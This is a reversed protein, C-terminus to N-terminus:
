KDKKVKFAESVTFGPFKLHLPTGAAVEAKETSVIKGEYCDWYEITYKGPTLGPLNTEIGEHRVRETPAPMSMMAQDNYVWGYAGNEWRYSYSLLQGATPGSTPLPICAGKIGRRDEGKIYNNFGRYYGWLSNRDILDYWWFLPTGAGDTMWTAWIGCAIDSELAPPRGAMNQGGYETIWFPKIINGSALTATNWREMDIACQTYRKALDRYADTVVYDFIPTKALDVDIWQYDTAYHITVPHDYPDCKRIHTIMRNAWAKLTPSRHFIRRAEWDSRGRDGVLDYESVLEWGLIAPDAGWRAAIYRLKNEHWKMTAPNSFMEQATAVGPGDGRSKYPNNEWEWDCYSSFKGHNDLVLHISMGHQHAMELLTDLKWAHQLSYRGAGYYETWEGTWEIGLWWSAMWVEATNEGNKQMKDFYDAYMHLGRGAPPEQHFVEKWCRIDVPSHLNHGIPYFFDGNDFEFFRPDKQSVKIFGRGGSPICCFTREPLELVETGLKCTLKYKYTGEERPSIRVRWEPRGMPKVQDGNFRDARDYDQYWFGIHQATQGSPSTVDCTIDAKDPDFPNDVERSLEFRVTMTEYKRVLPPSSEGEAAGPETRFNIVQLPRDKYAEAQAKLELLKAARDPAIPAAQPDQGNVQSVVRAFREARLFGRFNDLYVNGDFKKDGYITIGITQIQTAQNDDWQGLHGLPTVDRSGGRIDATVTTWKGPVLAAQSRAQYWLGHKDKMFFLCGTFGPCEKPVMIDYAIMRVGQMRPPTINKRFITAPSPFHVPIALSSKGESARDGSVSLGSHPKDESVVPVALQSTEDELAWGQDGQEFNYIPELMNPFWGAKPDQAEGIAKNAYVIAPAEPSAQQQTKLLDRGLLALAGGLLLLALLAAPLNLSKKSQDNSVDM